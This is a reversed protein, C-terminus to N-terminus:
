RGGAADLWADFRPDAMTTSLREFHKRAYEVYDIDLTSLGQQVVGWMAERFDSMIRMLKLRARHADTPEGFYLALLREQAEDSLANNISLNGLDFFPNGMGAYEHDVIWVHGDRLLFNSELLDNHCPVAPIPDAAFAREIRAALEYAPGYADPITVGREEAIRRYDEVIRFPDFSWDLPTGAHIARIAAVVPALVEPRELDGESLPEAEIWATVLCDLDPLYAVVKPGVGATAASRVAQQEAGRDIGLLHTDKGSLRLFFTEGHAIVRFNRNTRGEAIPEVALQAGAWAPIARLAADLAPDASADTEM